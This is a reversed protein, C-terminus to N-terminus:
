RFRRSMGWQLCMLGLARARNPGQGVVDVGGLGLELQLILLANLEEQIEDQKGHIITGRDLFVRYEEDSARFQPCQLFLDRQERKLAAMKAGCHRERQMVLRLAEDRMNPVADVFTWVAKLTKAHRHPNTSSKTTTSSSQPLSALSLADNFYHTLILSKVEHPLSNWSTM